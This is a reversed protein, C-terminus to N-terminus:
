ASHYHAPHLRHPSKPIKEVTYRRVINQVTSMFATSLLIGNFMTLVDVTTPKVPDNQFLHNAQTVFSFIIIAAFVVGFQVYLIPYHETAYLLALDSMMCAILISTALLFKQNKRLLQVVWLWIKQINIRM